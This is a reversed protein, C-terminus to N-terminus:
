VCLWTIVVYGYLLWKMTSNKFIGLKISTRKSFSTMTNTWRKLINKKILFKISMNYTIAQM